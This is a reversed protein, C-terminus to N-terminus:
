QKKGKILLTIETENGRDVLTQVAADFVGSRTAVTLMPYTRAMQEVRARESRTPQWRIVITRDGDSYGSDNIVVGGDLTAIRNVRRRTQGYDTSPLERIHLWGSTDFLPASLGIM